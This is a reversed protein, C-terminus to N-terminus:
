AKLWPIHDKEWISEYSDYEHVIFETGPKVWVVKLDEASYYNDGYHTTCYNEITKYVESAPNELLLKVIYPDFLLAQVGHTTYWGGSHRPSIIVAVEGKENYYKQIGRVIEISVSDTVSASANFSM